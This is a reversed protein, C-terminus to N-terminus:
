AQVPNSGMFEAIGVDCLDHTRIENLGSHRQRVEIECSRLSHIYSRRDTM